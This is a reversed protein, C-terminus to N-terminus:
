DNVIQFNDLIEKYESDCALHTQYIIENNSNLISWYIYNNQSLCLEYKCGLSELLKSLLECLLEKYDPKIKFETEKTKTVLSIKFPSENESSDTLLKYFEIFESLTLEPKMYLEYKNEKLKVILSFDFPIKM